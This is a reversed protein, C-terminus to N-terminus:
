TSSQSFPLIKDLAIGNCEELFDRLTVDNDENFQDRAAEALIKYYEVINNKHQESQIVIRKAIKKLKKKEWFTIAYDFM